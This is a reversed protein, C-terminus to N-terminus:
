HYGHPHLYDHLELDRISEPDFKNEQYRVYVNEAYLESEYESRIDKIHREYCDRIIKLTNKLAPFNSDIIRRNIWEGLEEENISAFRYGEKVKILAGIKYFYDFDSISAHIEFGEFENSRHAIMKIM